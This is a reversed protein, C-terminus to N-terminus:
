MAQKAYFAKYVNTLKDNGNVLHDKRRRKVQGCVAISSQGYMLGIVNTM